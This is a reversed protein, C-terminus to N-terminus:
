LVTLLVWHQWATASKTEMFWDTTTCQGVRTGIRACYQRDINRAGEGWESQRLAGKKRADFRCEFLFLVWYKWWGDRVAGVIYRHGDDSAFDVGRGINLAKRGRIWNGLRGLIEGTWKWRIGQVGTAFEFAGKHM